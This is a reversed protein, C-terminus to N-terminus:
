IKCYDFTQQIMLRNMDYWEHGHHHLNSSEAKSDAYTVYNEPPQHGPEIQHKTMQKKMKQETKRIWKTRTKRM